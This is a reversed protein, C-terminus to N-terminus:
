EFMLARAHTYICVNFNKQLLEYLAKVHTFKNYLFDSLAWLRTYRCKGQANGKIHVHWVGTITTGLDETYTERQPCIQKQLESM